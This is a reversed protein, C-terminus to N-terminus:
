IYGVRSPGGKLHFETPSESLHAKRGGLWDRRSARAKCVKAKQIREAIENGSDDAQCSSVSRRHHAGPKVHVIEQDEWM